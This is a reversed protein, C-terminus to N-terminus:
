FVVKAARSWMSKIPFCYKKVWLYQIMKLAYCLGGILERNRPFSQIKIFKSFWRTENDSAPITSHNEIIKKVTQSLEM